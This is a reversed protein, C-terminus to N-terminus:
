LIQLDGRCIDEGRCRPGRSQITRQPTATRPMTPYPAANRTGGVQHWFGEWIGTMVVVFTECVDALSGLPM